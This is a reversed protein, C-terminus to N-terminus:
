RGLLFDIQDHHARMAAGSHLVKKEPANRLADNAFRRDGNQRNMGLVSFVLSGKPTAGKFARDSGADTIRARGARRRQRTGPSEIGQPRPHGDRNFRSRCQARYRASARSSRREGRTNRLAGLWSNKGERAQRAAATQGKRPIPLSGSAGAPIWGRRGPLPAVNLLYLKADNQQAVKLAVDLAALSHESFDIPCLIRHFLQIM